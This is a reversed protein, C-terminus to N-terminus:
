NGKIQKMRALIKDAYDYYDQRDMSWSSRKEEAEEIMAELNNIDEDQVSGDDTIM